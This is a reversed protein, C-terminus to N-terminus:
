LHLGRKVGKIQVGLVVGEMGVDESGAAGYRVGVM